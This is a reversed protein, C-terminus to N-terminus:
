LGMEKQISAIQTNNPDLTIAQHMYRKAENLRKLYYSSQALQIFGDRYEPYNIAIQKWYDYSRENTNSIYDWESLIRQLETQAGLVNTAVTIQKEAAANNGQTYLAQGFRIYSNISFPHRLVEKRYHEYSQPLYSSTIINVIFFAICGIEFIVRAPLIRTIHPFIKKRFFPLISM